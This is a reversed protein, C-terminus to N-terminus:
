PRTVRILLPGGTVTLANAGSATFGQVQLLYPGAAAVTRVMSLQGAASQTSAPYTGAQYGAFYGLSNENVWWTFSCNSACTYQCPMVVEVIDGVLLTGLNQTALGSMAAFTTSATALTLPGGNYVPAGVIGYPVLSQQIRSVPAGNGFFPGVAAIGTGANLIAGLEHVWQGSGAGAATFVWFSDPTIASPNTYTFIGRGPVYFIQGTQGANMVLAAMTATSGSRLVVVGTTNLVNNALATRNALGQMGTLVSSATEADGDAPAVIPSTFVLSDAINQPM